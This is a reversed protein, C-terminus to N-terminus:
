RQLTSREPELGTLAFPETPPPAWVSSATMQRISNQLPPANAVAAVVAACALLLLDTRHM